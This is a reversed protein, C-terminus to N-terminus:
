APPAAPPAPRRRGALLVALFVAGVVAVVWPLLQRALPSASLWFVQGAGTLADGLGRSLGAGPRLHPELYTVATLAPGVFWAVLLVGPWLALRAPPQAGVVVLAGGLAAAQLWVGLTGATTLAEFPLVAWVVSTLWGPLVGAVVGLAVGVGPRGVVALSGLGWALLTIGVVVACLATLVRQDADTGSGRGASAVSQTLCVTVALATGCGTALLARGRSGPRALLGTLGALVGGAVAGLVLATLLAARLPLALPAARGAGDLLWPLYGIVWWALAAVPVLARAPLRRGRRVAAPAPSSAIM